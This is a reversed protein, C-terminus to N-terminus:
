YYRNQRNFRNNIKIGLYIIGVIVQLFVFGASYFFPGIFFTAFIWGLLYTIGWYNMKRALEINAIIGIISFLASLIPPFLGTKIVVGLVANFVFGSAMEGIARNYGHNAKPM